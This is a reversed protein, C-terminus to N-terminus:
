RRAIIGGLILGALGTALLATIPNERVYEGIQEAGGGAGTFRDRAQSAVNAVASTLGGASASATHPVGGTMSSKPDHSPVSADKSHAALAPGAGGDIQNESM